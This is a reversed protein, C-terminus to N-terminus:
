HLQAEHRGKAEIIELAELLWGPLRWMVASMYLAMHEDLEM